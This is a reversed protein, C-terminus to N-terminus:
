TSSSRTTCSATSPCEIGLIGEDQGVQNGGANPDVNVPTPTGPSQPNFTVERGGGSGATCQTASPCSLSFLPNFTFGLQAFFAKSREVDAVPITVFLMRGPHAPHTM